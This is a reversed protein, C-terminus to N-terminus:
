NEDEMQVASGDPNFAITITKDNSDIIEMVKMTKGGIYNRVGMEDLLKKLQQLQTM